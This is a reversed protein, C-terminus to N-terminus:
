VCVCVVIFRLLQKRQTLWASLTGLILDVLAQEEEPTPAYLAVSMPGDWISALTAVQAFRDLSAITALTVGAEPGRLIESACKFSSINQRENQREIVFPNTHKDIELSVSM